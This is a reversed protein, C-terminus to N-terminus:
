CTISFPAPASEVQEPDDVRFYLNGADPGQAFFTETIQRTGPGPFHATIKTGEITGGGSRDFVMHFIVPGRGEAITISGTARLNAPCRRAFRDGIPDIVVSIGAPRGAPQQLHFYMGLGFLAIGILCFLIYQIPRHLAPVEINAAKLGGGAIAALVCTIGIGILLIDM